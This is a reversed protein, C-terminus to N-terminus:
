RCYYETDKSSIFLENKNGSLNNCVELNFSSNSITNKDKNYGFLITGGDFIGRLVEMNDTIEKITVYGKTIADGIETKGTEAGVYYVKGCKSKMKKGDEYEYITQWKSNCKPNNLEITFSERVKEEQKNEPIDEIIQKNEKNKLFFMTFIVVVLIIVILPIIIKSKKM